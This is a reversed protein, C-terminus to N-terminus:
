LVDNGGEKMIVMRWDTVGLAKWYRRSFELKELEARTGLKDYSVIERVGSKGNIYRILFDSMWETDFYSKRIGTPDVLPYREKDLPVCVEYLGVTKDAELFKAYERAARSHVCVAEANKASKFSFNKTKKGSKEM